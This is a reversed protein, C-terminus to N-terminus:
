IHYMPANMNERRQVLEEFSINGIVSEIANRVDKWVSTMVCSGQHVCEDNSDLSPTTCKFPLIPGDILRIVEGLNIDRPHRALRYGGGAGRKSEVIGARKLELLIQVLFPHPITEDNSIEELTRVNDTDYVQALDLTALIAYEGKASIRM